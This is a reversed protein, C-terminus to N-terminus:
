WLRQSHLDYGIINDTFLIASTGAEKLFIFRNSKVIIRRDGSAMFTHISVNWMRNSRLKGFTKGSRVWIEARTRYNNSNDSFQDIESM